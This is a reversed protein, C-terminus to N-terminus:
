RGGRGHRGGKGKDWEDPNAMRLPVTKMMVGFSPLDNSGFTIFLPCTQTLHHLPEEMFLHSCSSTTYLYVFITPQDLGLQWRKGELLSSTITGAIGGALVM